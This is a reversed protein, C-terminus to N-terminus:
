FQTVRALYRGAIWLEEVTREYEGHRENDSSVKVIIPEEGPRSTVELRKLIIGGFEDGLAYIGPPSPVRHRTDILVVDGHLITPTMSDGQTRFMAIKDSPVGLASTFWDPLRWWDKIVEASWEIGEGPSVVTTIGGGGLGLTADVEPSSGPPLGRVGAHGSITPVRDPESFGPGAPDWQPTGFEPAKGRGTALWEMSVQFRRAILSLNERKIGQDREWNGVAGRTVKGLREAFETQTLGLGTRLEQIRQGISEM